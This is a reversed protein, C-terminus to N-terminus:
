EKSLEVLVLVLVQDNCLIGVQLRRCASSAQGVEISVKSTLSDCTQQVQKKLLSWLLWLLIEFTEFQLAFFTKFTEFSRLNKCIKYDRSYYLNLFNQLNYFIVTELFHTDHLLQKLAFCWSLFAAASSSFRLKCFRCFLGLGIDWSVVMFNLCTCSYYITAGVAKM